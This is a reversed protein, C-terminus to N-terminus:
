VGTAVVEFAGGVTDGSSRAADIRAIMREEAPRDPCRAAPAATEDRTRTRGDPTAAVGGVEVTFSWCEIGLEALFRRAVGGAAVRATTERASARELVNRVDDFGYKIAGALDA